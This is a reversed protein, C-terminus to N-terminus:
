RITLKLTYKPSTLRYPQAVIVRYTGTASGIFQNDQPDEFSQGNPQVFTFGSLGEENESGVREGQWDLDVIITQGKRARFTYIDKKGLLVSGRITASTAGPRFQIQRTVAAKTQAAVPNLSGAGFIMALSIGVSLLSRGKM